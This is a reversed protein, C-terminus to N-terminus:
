FALGVKLETFYSWYSYKGGDDYYSPDLNKFQKDVWSNFLGAKFQIFANDFVRQQFGWAVRTTTKKIDLMYPVLGNGAYNTHSWDQEANLAIFPGSLNNGSKGTLIRRQLNYYWRFEGQLAGGIGKHHYPDPNLGYWNLELYNLNGRAGFEVSFPSSGLKQEFAVSPSFGVNKIEKSFEYINLVNLLDIKLMRKNEDFCHLVDCFGGSPEKDKRPSFHALGIAFQQNASFKWAGSATYGPKAPIFNAGLGYSLDIFSRKLLRRQIGYRAFFQFENYDRYTLGQHTGTAFESQFGLYNGSFNDASRGQKIKQSMNYYWRLNTQIQHYNAQRRSNFGGTFSKAFTYGVGLSVDETIKYDSGVSLKFENSAFPNDYYEQPILKSMDWKFMWKAPTMTRFAQDYQTEYHQPEITGTEEKVTTFTTDQQAYLLPTGLLSLLAAFLLNKM